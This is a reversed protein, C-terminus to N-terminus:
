VAIFAGAGDFQRKIRDQLSNTAFSRAAMVALAGSQSCAPSCTGVQEQRISDILVGQLKFGQSLAPGAAFAMRCTAPFNAVCRATPLLSFWPLMTTGTSSFKILLQVPQVPKLYQGRYWLQDVRM